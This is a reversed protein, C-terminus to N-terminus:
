CVPDTGHIQVPAIEQRGNGVFGLATQLFVPQCGLALCQNFACSGGFPRILGLVSGHIVVIGGALDLVTIQECSINVTNVMCDYPKVM